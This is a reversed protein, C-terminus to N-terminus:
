NSKPRCEKWYDYGDETKVKEVFIDLFGDGVIPLNEKSSSITLDVFGIAAFGYSKQSIKVRSPSSREILKANLYYTPKCSKPYRDKSQWNQAVVSSTIGSVALFLLGVTCRLYASTNM